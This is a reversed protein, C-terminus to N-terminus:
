WHGARPEHARRALLLRGESDVPLASVTPAPNGYERQGCSLCTVSQGDPDRELEGACRPCHRWPGIDTM